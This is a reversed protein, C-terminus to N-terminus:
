KATRPSFLAPLPGQDSVFDITAGAAGIVVAGVTAGIKATAALRLTYPLQNSDQPATAPAVSYSHARHSPLAHATEVVLGEDVDAVAADAGGYVGGVNSSAVTLNRALALFAMPAPGQDAGASASADSKQPPCFM